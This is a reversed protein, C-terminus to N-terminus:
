LLEHLEVDLDKAIRKLDIRGEEAECCSELAFIKRALNRRPEQIDRNSMHWSFLIYAIMTARQDEGVPGNIEIEFAIAIDDTSVSSVLALREAVEAIDSPKLDGSSWCLREIPYEQLAKNWAQLLKVDAETNADNCDSCLRDDPNDNPLIHYDSSPILQVSPLNTRACIKIFKYNVVIKANNKIAEKAIDNYVQVICSCVEHNPKDLHLKTAPSHSTLTVTTGTTTDKIITQNRYETPVLKAQPRRDLFYKTFTAQKFIHPTDISTLVHISKQDVETANNERSLPIYYFHKNTAHSQLELQIKHVRVALNLAVLASMFSDMHGDFQKTCVVEPIVGFRMIPYKELNESSPDFLCDLAKLFSVPKLIVHQYNPDILSLDFISGFSTYFKCFGKLSKDDMGCEKAMIQLEERPITIKREYRHFLSRLFVWSIPIEDYKKENVILQFRQHFYQSLSNDNSDESHIKEIKEQLLGSVGIRKAVPQIRDELIQVKEQLKENAITGSHKAYITCVRRREKEKDESIKCSRLLYHLRPRWSMLEAFEPPKDLNDIDDELDLFLWMYHNYLHGQMSALFHRIIRNIAFSWINIINISSRGTLGKNSLLKYIFHLHENLDPSDFICTATSLTANNFDPIVRQSTFLEKFASFLVPEFNSEALFQDTAGEAKSDGRIALHEAAIARGKSLGSCSLLIPNVKVTSTSEKILSLLEKLDYSRNSLQCHEASENVSTNNSKNPLEDMGLGVVLESQIGTPDM